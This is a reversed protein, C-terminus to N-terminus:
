RQRGLEVITVGLYDRALEEATHQLTVAGVAHNGSADDLRLGVEAFM